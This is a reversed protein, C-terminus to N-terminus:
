IAKGAMTRSKLFCNKMDIRNIVATIKITIFKNKAGAYRIM